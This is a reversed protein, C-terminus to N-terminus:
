PPVGGFGCHGSPARTATESTTLKSSPASYETESPSAKLSAVETELQSPAAGDLTATVKITPLDMDPFNQISLHKFALLGGVALMAFLLIAPVPNRISFASFNM